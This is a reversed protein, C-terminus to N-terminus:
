SEKQKKVCNNIWYHTWSQKMTALEFDLDSEMFRDEFYKLLRTLSDRYDEPCSSYDGDSLTYKKSADLQALQQYERFFAENSPLTENSLDGKFNFSFNQVTKREFIACELDSSCKAVVIRDKNVPLYIDRVQRIEKEGFVRIRHV